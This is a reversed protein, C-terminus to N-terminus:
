ADPLCFKSRQLPTHDSEDFTTLCAPQEQTYKAWDALM